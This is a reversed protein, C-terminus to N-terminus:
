CGRTFAGTCQFHPHACLRGLLETAEVRALTKEFIEERGVNMRNVILYFRGCRTVDVSVQECHDRGILAALDSDLKQGLFNFDMGGLEQGPIIASRKHWSPLLPRLDTFQMAERLAEMEELSRTSIIPNGFGAHAQFSRLCNIAESRSIPYSALVIGLDTGARSWGLDRKHHLSFTDTLGKSIGIKDDKRIEARMKMETWMLVLLLSLELLGPHELSIDANCIFDIGSVEERPNMYVLNDAWAGKGNKAAQNKKKMHHPNANDM